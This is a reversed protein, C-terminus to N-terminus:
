TQLINRNQRLRQKSTEGKIQGEILFYDTGQKSRIAGNARNFNCTFWCYLFKAKEENKEVM